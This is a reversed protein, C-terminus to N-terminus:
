IRQSILWFSIDNNKMSRKFRRGITQSILFLVALAIVLSLYWPVGAATLLIFMLLCLIFSLIYGVKVEYQFRMLAYAASAGLALAIIASSIGVIATNVYPRAVINGSTPDALLYTWADTNPQFDVFPIFKPGNNVDGPSKFATILLWYLPFLVIVTWIGLLIYSVTLWGPSVRFPNSTAFLKKLM